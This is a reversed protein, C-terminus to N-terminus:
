GDIGLRRCREISAAYDLAGITPPAPAVHAGAQGVPIHKGQRDVGLIRGREVHSCIAGADKDEIAATRGNWGERITRGLRHGSRWLEDVNRTGPGLYTRSVMVAALDWRALTSCSTM